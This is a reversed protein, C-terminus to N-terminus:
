LTQKKQKGKGLEVVLANRMATQENDVLVKPFIRSDLDFGEIKSTFEAAYNALIPLLVGNDCMALFKQKDGKFVMEILTLQMHKILAQISAVGQPVQRVLFTYIVDAIDDQSNEIFM